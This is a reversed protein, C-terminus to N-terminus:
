TPTRWKVSVLQNSGMTGGINPDALNQTKNLPTASISTPKPNIIEPKPYEKARSIIESSFSTKALARRRTISYGTIKLLNQYRIPRHPKMIKAM